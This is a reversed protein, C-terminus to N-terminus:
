NAVALSRLPNGSFPKISKVFTDERGKATSDHAKPAIEGELNSLQNTAVAVGNEIANAEKVVADAEDHAIEASTGADGAEERSSNIERRRRMSRMTHMKWSLAM